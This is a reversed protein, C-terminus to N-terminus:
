PKKGKSEQLTSKGNPSRLSLKVIENSDNVSVEARTVNDITAEFGDGQAPKTATKGRVDGTFVFTKGDNSISLHGASFTTTVEDGNSPDKTHLKASIPGALEGGRLPNKAAKDNVFKLTASSANVEFTERGEAVSTVTLAGPLTLTAIDGGVYKLSKSDLNVVRKIGNSVSTMTAKHLGSVTADRIEFAGNTHRVASGDISEAQLQLGQAESTATMLPNGVADFTLVNGNMSSNFSKMNLLSMNKYRIDIALALSFLALVFSIPLIRRM